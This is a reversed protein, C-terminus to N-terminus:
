IGRVKSSATGEDRGLAVARDFAARIAGRVISDAEARRLVELAAATTGNPSTVRQRLQAFTAGDSELYAVAGKLTQLVLAHADGEPLGCDRAVAEIQEGLWCLYAPGSGAVATAVDILDERDVKWAQGCSRVVQAVRAEQEPSFGEPVFYTTASERVRAGLNPMARAVFAHAMHSGLNAISVGAMMSLVVSRPPLQGRLEASLAKADQPKVTLVVVDQDALSPIAGPRIGTDQHIADNKSGDRGVLAVADPSMGDALLSKAVVTGLNGAGVIVVRM